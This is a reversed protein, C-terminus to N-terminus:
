CTGLNALNSGLVVRLSGSSKLSSVCCIFWLPNHNRGETHSYTPSHLLSQIEEPLLANLFAAMEVCRSANRHLDALSTCSASFLLWRQRSPCLLSQLPGPGRHARFTWPAKDPCFTNKCLLLLLHCAWTFSLSAPSGMVLQPSPLTRGMSYFSYCSLHM